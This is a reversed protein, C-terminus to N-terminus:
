FLPLLLSDEFCRIELLCPPGAGAPKSHNLFKSFNCKRNLPKLNPSIKIQITLKGLTRIQVLVFPFHGTDNVEFTTQSLCGFVTLATTQCFLGTFQSPSKLRVLAENEVHCVCHGWLERLMFM